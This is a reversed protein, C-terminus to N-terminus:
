LDSSIETKKWTVTYCVTYMEDLENEQVIKYSIIDPHGQRHQFGSEEGRIYIEIGANGIKANYTKGQYKAICM